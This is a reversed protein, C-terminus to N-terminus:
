PFSARISRAYEGLAKVCADVNDGNEEIIRQIASGIIIGDAYHAIQSAQEPTSIGFGACIPLQLVEKLSKIRDELDVSFERREGTVGFSTVYYIFGSSTKKLQSIRKKTTAPTILHILDMNRKALERFLNESEETDFPLDPIVLGTIGSESARDLFTAIGCHYVPNFYTLYVLPIEPRHLHIQKTVDFIQDFSFTNKLARADARQIVPGDAVPDSFPIGLELIDAGNDLIAKGYRVSAEYNPDGLTFFPVFVSKSKKSAFYDKIKSM